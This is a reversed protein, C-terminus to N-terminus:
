HLCCLDHMDSVLDPWKAQLGKGVAQWLEDMMIGADTGVAQELLQDGVVRAQVVHFPPWAKDSGSDLHGLLQPRALQELLQWPGAPLACTGLSASPSYLVCAFYHQVNCKRPCATMSLPM